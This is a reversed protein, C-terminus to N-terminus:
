LCDFSLKVQNFYIEYLLTDHKNPHLIKFWVINITQILSLIKGILKYLFFMGFFSM